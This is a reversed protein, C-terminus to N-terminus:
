RAVKWCDLGADVGALALAGRRAWKAYNHHGDRELKRTAWAVAPIAALSLTIRVARRKMLPNAEYGIGRHIAVETCVLAAGRLAGFEVAFAKTGAHAPSALLLALLLLGARLGPVARFAARACLYAEHALADATNACGPGCQGETCISAYFRRRLSRSVKGALRSKRWGIERAVRILTEADALADRVSQPASVAASVGSRRHLKM